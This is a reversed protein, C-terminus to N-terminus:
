AHSVEKTPHFRSRYDRPAVGLVRHFSRRMTEESGFGCSAAVVALSAASGALEIRAREVRLGEIYRAPTTGVERHFARSFNRPSMAARAALPLDAWFPQVFAADAVVAQVAGPETETVSSIVEGTAPDRSELM